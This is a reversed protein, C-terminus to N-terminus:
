TADVVAVDVTTKGVVKVNVLVTKAPAEGVTSGTARTEGSAASVAVELKASNEFEDEIMEAVLELTTPLPSGPMKLPAAPDDTDDKADLVDGADTWRM